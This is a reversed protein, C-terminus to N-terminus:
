RVHQSMDKSTLCVVEKSTGTLKLSHGLVQLVVARVLPQHFCARCFRDHCNAAHKGDFSPRTSCRRKLVGFIAPRRLLCTCLVLFQTRTPHADLLSVMAGDVYAENTCLTVYAESNNPRLPLHHDVAVPDLTDGRSM